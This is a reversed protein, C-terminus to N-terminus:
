DGSPAATYLVGKSGDKDVGGREIYRLHLSAAKAGSATMRVVHAKVVV